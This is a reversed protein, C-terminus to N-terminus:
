HNLLVAFLPSAWGLESPCVTEQAFPVFLKSRLFEASMGRGTDSVTLTIMDEKPGQQQSWGQSAKTAELLMSVRGSDTYKIANSLINMIIRRIAGPPTYYIWDNQAIDLTVDVHLQPLDPDQSSKTTVFPAGTTDISVTSRQSYSHGLCVGEVVEESLLSVDTTMYADLHGASRQMSEIDMHSTLNRKLHRLDKELSALKTYDLVQNMTDLLTRGCANITELLSSQFDDFQTGQLL